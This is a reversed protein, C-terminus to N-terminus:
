YRPWRTPQCKCVSEDQFLALSVQFLWSPPSNLSCSAKQAMTRRLKTTKEEKQSTASLGNIPSNIQPFNDMPGAKMVCPIVHHFNSLFLLYILGHKLDWSERKIRKLLNQYYAIVFQQGVVIGPATYAVSRSNRIGPQLARRRSIFVFVIGSNPPPNRPM